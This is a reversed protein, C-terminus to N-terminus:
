GGSRAKIPLTVVLMAMGGAPEGQDHQWAQHHPILHLDESAHRHRHAPPEEGVPM